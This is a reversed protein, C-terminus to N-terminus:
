IKTYDMGRSKFNRRIRSFDRYKGNKLEHTYSDLEINDTNTSLEKDIDYEVNIFDYSINSYEQSNIEGEIILYNACCTNKVNGDKKDNRIVDLSNGVSGTNIIVRNYLRQMFQTHIHGYVVVDCIKSSTTYDSPLFLSYLNNLRDVNGVFGYVNNPTAHFMRVLRGSIYLEYTKPLNVLYNFDEDSLKSRVWNFRKVEMKNNTKLSGHSFVDDCNGQVVVDCKDRVLDLCEKMNTGKLIIDGICIIKDVERKEIDKLTSKLAELNGHIDSIVAVKM